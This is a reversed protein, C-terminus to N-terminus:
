SLNRSLRTEYSPIEPVREEKQSKLITLLKWDREVVYLYYFRIACYCLNLTKPAWESENKRYLFYEELEGETIQEPDKNYHVTLQHVARTYAQKLGYAKGM